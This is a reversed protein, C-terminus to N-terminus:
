MVWPQNNLFTTAHLIFKEPKEEVSCEQWYQNTAKWIEDKSVGAKRHKLYLGKAKVKSHGKREPYENKWWQEFEEELLQKQSPAESAQDESFLGIDKPKSHPKVIPIPKRDKEIGNAIESLDFQEKVCYWKTRDYSTKNFEGETIFGGDILKAIATRIQSTSLYPFLTAFAAVSNYCWSQGDYQHKGNAENKECWHKINQHLVAAAIGVKAAVETDFQHMSM